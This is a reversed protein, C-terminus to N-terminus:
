GEYIESGTSYKHWAKCAEYFAKLTEETVTGEEKALFTLPDQVETTGWGSFTVNVKNDRYKHSGSTITFSDITQMSKIYKNDETLVVKVKVTDSEEDFSNADVKTGDVYNSNLWSVLREKNLTVTYTHDEGKVAEVMDIADISDEKTERMVDQLLSIEHSGMRVTTFFNAFMWDNLVPSCTNNSCTYGEEKNKVSVFIPGTHTPLAKRLRFTYEQNKDDQYFSVEKDKDYQQTFKEIGGKVVNDKQVTLSKLAQTNKAAINIMEELTKVRSYDVTYEEEEENDGDIDLGITYVKGNSGTIKSEKIAELELKMTKLTSVTAIGNEANNSYKYSKTTGNPDTVKVTTKNEEFKDSSLTVPIIYKENTQTTLTGSLKGNTETLGDVKAYNLVANPKKEYIATAVNTTHATLISEAKAKDTIERDSTSYGLVLKKFVNEKSLCNEGVKYGLKEYDIEEGYYYIHIVDYPSPRNGNENDVIALFYLKSNNDSLYYFDGYYAEAVSNSKDNTKDIINYIGNKTMGQAKIVANPHLKQDGPTEEEEGTVNGPHSYSTVRAITPHKYDENTNTINTATLTGGVLIAAHMDDNDESSQNEDLEGSVDVHDAVVTAGDEVMLQAKKAGTLKLHSLTVTGDGKKVDMVYDQNTVTITLPEVESMLNVASATSLPAITIDSKATIQIPEEISYNGDTLYITEYAGKDIADQIDSAGLTGKQNVVAFNSDFTFTYTKEDDSIVEKDSGVLQVTEDAEGIKLSFTTGDFELEDLTATSEQHNLANDFKEKAKEIVQNKFSTGNEDLLNRDAGKTSIQSTKPVDSSSFTVSEGGVTLTIDKIEGKQLIYAIAGPISTNGLESVPINMSDLHITITNGEQTLHFKGTFDDSHTTDSNNLDKVLDEMFKEVNLNWHATLEINEHDGLTLEEVKTGGQKYWGDFTRYDTEFSSMDKLAVKEGEYTIVPETHEVGKNDRFKYTIKDESEFNLSDYEITYEQPLFDYGKDGNASGDFDIQYKITKSSDKGDKYIKFLVMVWGQEYEEETPTYEKPQGDETNLIITWSKAYNNLEEDDKGPFTIKIPVFYGKNDKFGKQLNQEKITGELGDKVPDRDPQSESDMKVKVDASAQYDYGYEELADHEPSDEGIEEKTLVDYNGFNGNSYDQLVLGSWDVTITYPEYNVQGEQEEEGDWDLTITFKRGSAPLLSGDEDYPDLYKLIYLLKENDAFDSKAVKEESGDQLFKVNMTSSTKTGLETQLKFALYYLADKPFTGEGDTLDEHNFIPLVGTVKVTHPDTEEVTFETKYGEKESWGDWSTTNDTDADTKDVGAITFKSDRVFTVGSYDVTYEKETYISGDGDADVKVKFEKTSANPDAKFIITINGNSDLDSHTFKRGNAELTVGETAHPVHLVFSFYYGPVPDQNRGSYYVDDNYKVKGSFKYGDVKLTEENGAYGIFDNTEQNDSETPLKIEAISVSSIINVKYSDKSGEKLTSNSSLTFKLTLNKDVLDEQLAAEYSKGTVAALLNQLTEYAKSYQGNMSADDFVYDQGNYTVTISAVHGEKLLDRIGAVIGSGKISSLLADPNLMDFTLTGNDADYAAKYSDDKFSESSKKVIEDTDVVYLWHAKLTINGTIPTTFEYKEGDETYWGDFVYGAKTPEESPEHVSRGEIVDVTKKEEKGNDSDFTVTYHKPEPLPDYDVYSAYIVKEDDLEIQTKGIEPTGVVWDDGDKEIYSITMEGYIDDQNTKGNEDTVKISKAAFMVDQVTLEHNSTFIYEGIIYVYGANPQRDEVEKVFEKMTLERAFTPVMSALFTCLALLTMKGFKKM